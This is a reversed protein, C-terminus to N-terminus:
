GARRRTTNVGCEDAFLRMVPLRYVWVSLLRRAKGPAPELGQAARGALTRCRGRGAHTVTVGAKCMGLLRSRQTCAVGNAHFPLDNATRGEPPRM